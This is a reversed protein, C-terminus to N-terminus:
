LHVTIDKEHSKLIALSIELAKRGAYVDSVPKVKNQICEVFYRNEEFYATGDLFIDNIKISEEYPKKNTKVRLEAFNWLDNGQLIASGKTGIIGRMNFAIHSSWSAVIAGLAGNEFTLVTNSNNDFSPLVPITGLVNAKVTKIEGAISRLFDIDHSLSEISMGCVLKADTRWSDQLSGSFGVGPGMRISFMQVMQGLEGSEYLENLLKYGKRFRQTFASMYYVGQGQAYNEMIMADELSAAIPKEAFIHKGAKMGEMAYTARKSPPTMLHIMDVDDLVEDMATISKTDYQKAIYEARDSNIDYVGAIQVELKKLAECHYPTIGGAGVIVTKLM